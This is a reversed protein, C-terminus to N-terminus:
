TKFLIVVECRCQLSSFCAFRRGPLGLFFDTLVAWLISVTVDGVAANTDDFTVGTL